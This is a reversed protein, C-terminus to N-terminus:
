PATGDGQRLTTYRDVALDTWEEVHGDPWVVRVRPAETSEGLGVLVRPDSASAYSGDTHVRRWLTQGSERIVAVRTGPMDKSDGVDGVDGSGPSGTSGVLRLGLWHRRNGITNILLRVPGANNGVLVDVDGDNDIDGFAAGRGIESLSFVAGAQGSVDEFRGSGLNRFLTKRQDYPFMEYRNDAVARNQASDGSAQPRVLADRRVAGNAALLDLWGDNDYDFWATGWGAHALSGPGLGTSASRDQFVGTGDNVYLNNGETELHTMFLDEDGDNDFDGAAVGMSAEPTGLPSLAAGSLLATDRFTGDRQNMWLINESGDNAVYLDPWGDGDYDAATVGLAPRLQGSTALSVGGPIDYLLATRSVDDFTGDGRNRYLRDQLGGYVQPSCYDVTGGKNPCVIDSDLDYDVYNGVYLDLWGDRDYDVFSASVGFVGDGAIGARDSMETFTGDGNNRFLQDPGFNTVFLDVWGDNDVDGTAVGIGFRDATLGSVATVDTFRLSAAGDDGDALDNRYLRGTLLTSDPPAFLADAFTKGEGLMQGQVIFADLDGDNDYDFLGVGPPFIEPSFFEGSAGNFHVFDLGVEAARDVFWESAGGTAAGAASAEAQSSEDPRDVDCGSVVALLLGCCAIHASGRAIGTHMPLRSTM